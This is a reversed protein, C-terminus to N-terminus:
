PLRVKEFLIHPRSELGFGQLVHAAELGIAAAWQVAPENDAEVIAEIRRYDLEALQRRAFRTVALAISRPLDASFLAWAVAQVPAFTERFGACVRVRHDLCATWAPGNAALDRGYAMDLPMDLGLERRQRPALDLQIIDGALFPRITVSM